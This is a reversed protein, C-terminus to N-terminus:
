KYTVFASSTPKKQKKFFALIRFRRFNISKGIFKMEEFPQGKFVNKQRSNPVLHAPSTAAVAFLELQATPM